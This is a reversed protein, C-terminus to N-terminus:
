GTGRRGAVLHLRLRLDRAEPEDQTRRDARTGDTAVLVTANADDVRVVGAWVVEGATATRDRRLSRVIRRVDETYRDKLPGTAGAAIRALDDEATEHSSTSSRPRRPPRPPWRPPTGPTSPQRAPARTARRRWRCRWRGCLRGGPGRRAGM